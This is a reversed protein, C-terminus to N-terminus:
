IISPLDDAEDRSVVEMIGKHKLEQARDLLSAATTIREESLFIDLNDLEIGSGDRFKYILENLDKEFKISLRDNMKFITTKLPGHDIERIIRM